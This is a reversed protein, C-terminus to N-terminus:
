SQKDEAQRMADIEQAAKKIYEVARERYGNDNEELLGTFDSERILDETAFLQRIAEAAKNNEMDNEKNNLQENSLTTM